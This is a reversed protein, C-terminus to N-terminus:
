RETAMRMPGSSGTRSAAAAAQARSVEELAPMDAAATTWAGHLYRKIGDWVDGMDGKVAGAFAEFTDLGGQAYLGAMEAALTVSEPDFRGVPSGQYPTGEEAVGSNRLKARLKAQVEALRAKAADDLRLQPAAPKSPEPATPAVPDPAERSLQAVAAANRVEKAWREMHPEPNASVARVFATMEQYIPQGLYPAQAAVFKGWRAKVERLAEQELNDPTNKAANVIADSEIISDMINDNWV